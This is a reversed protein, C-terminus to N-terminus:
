DPRSASHDMIKSGTGKLSVPPRPSAEKQPSPTAAKGADNEVKQNQNPTNRNPITNVNNVGLQPIQIAGYKVAIVAGTVGRIVAM